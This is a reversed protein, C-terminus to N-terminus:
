DQIPVKSKMKRLIRQVKPEISKTPEFNLTQFQWTSLLALCKETYKANGMIVVGGGKDQKMIIIDERKSLNNSARKQYNQLKVNYYKECTNRLKTKIQGGENEPIHSIDKM